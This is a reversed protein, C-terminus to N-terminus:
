PCTPDGRNASRGVAELLLSRSGLTRVRVFLDGNAALLRAIAARITATPEDDLEIVQPRGRKARAIARALAADREPDRSRPPTRTEDATADRIRM